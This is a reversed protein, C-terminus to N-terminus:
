PTPTFTPSPTYTITPTPTATPGESKHFHWPGGELCPIQVFNIDLPYVYWTYLGEPQLEVYKGMEVTENQRLDIVKEWIQGDPAIVRILNRTAAPGRWNFTVQGYGDAESAYDMPQLLEFTCDYTAVPQASGPVRLKQGTVIVNADSLCNAEALDWRTTGYVQAIRDLADGPQVEYTLTWDKRVQCGPTTTPTPTELGRIQSADVNSVYVETPTITPTDSPAPTHTPPEFTPPPRLTQSPTLTALPTYPPITETPLADTTPSAADQVASQDTLANQPLGVIAIAMLMLVLVGVLSFTAKVLRM